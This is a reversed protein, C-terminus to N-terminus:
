RGRGAAFGTRYIGNVILGLVGGIVFLLVAGGCDLHAHGGLAVAVLALLVFAVCCGCGGKLFAALHGASDRSVVREGSDSSAAYLERLSYHNGDADKATGCQWCSDAQEEVM